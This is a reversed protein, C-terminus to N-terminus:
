ETIVLKIALKYHRVGENNHLSANNEQVNLYVYVCLEFIFLFQTIKFLGRGYTLNIRYPLSVLSHM